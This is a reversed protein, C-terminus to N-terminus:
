LDRKKSTGVKQSNQNLTRSYQVTITPNNYTEGNHINFYQTVSVSDSDPTGFSFFYKGPCVNYYEATGNSDMTRREIVKSGPRKGRRLEVNMKGSYNSSKIILTTTSPCEEAFVNTGIFLLIAVFLMKM